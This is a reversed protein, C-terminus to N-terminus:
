AFPIENRSVIIPNRENLEELIRGWLAKSKKESLKKGHTEEVYKSVAEEWFLIEREPHLDYKFGDIWRKVSYDKFLNRVTPYLARARETLHEPLEDHYLLSSELLRKAEDPSILRKQGMLKAGKM